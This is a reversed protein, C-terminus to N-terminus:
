PIYTHIQFMQGNNPDTFQIFGSLNSSPASSSTRVITLEGLKNVGFKKTNSNDFVSFSNYSSLDEAMVSAGITVTNGNSIFAIVDVASLTSSRLTNNKATVGGSDM